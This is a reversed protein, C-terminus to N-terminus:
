DQEIQINDLNIGHKKMYNNAETRTKFEESVGPGYLHYPYLREYSRGDSGGDTHRIVLTIRKMAEIEEKATM